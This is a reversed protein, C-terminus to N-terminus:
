VIVIPVRGDAVLVRPDTFRWRLVYGVARRRSGDAVAGLRAGAALARESITELDSGKMAWTTLRPRTLCELGFWLPRAPPPQEPDPGLIELYSAPGLAILANRTGEGIHRGGPAARVGLGGQLEAVTRELDPTAYVLHDLSPKM